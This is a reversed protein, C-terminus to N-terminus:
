MYEIPHHLPVALGAIYVESLVRLTACSRAVGNCVHISGAAQQMCLKQQGKAGRQDRCQFGSGQQRVAVAVLWLSGNCWLRGGVVVMVMVVVSSSGRVDTRGCNM